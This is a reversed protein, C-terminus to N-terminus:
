KEQNITQFDLSLIPVCRIKETQGRIKWFIVEIQVDTKVHTATILDPFLSSFGKQLRKKIRGSDESYLFSICIIQHWKFIVSSRSTRETESDYQWFTHRHDTIRFHYRLYCSLFSTKIHETFPM